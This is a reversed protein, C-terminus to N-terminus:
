NQSDEWAFVERMAEENYITRAKQMAFNPDQNVITNGLAELIYKRKLDQSWPWIGHRFFARVEEESAQAQVRNLDFRIRPNINKQIGIFKELSERSWEFGERLTRSFVFVVLLVM